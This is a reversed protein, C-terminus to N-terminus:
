QRNRRWVGGVIGLLTTPEVVGFVNLELYVPNARIWAGQQRTIIGAFGPLCKLPSAQVWIPFREEDGIM